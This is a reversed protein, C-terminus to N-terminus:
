RHAGRAARALMRLRSYLDDRDVYCGRLRRGAGGDEFAERGHLVRRNDFIVCDGPRLPFTIRFEHSDCLEIFRRIARYSRDVDAHQMDPFLRLTNAIRIEDVRDGDLGIVPASWRVDTETSRNAWVWPLTALAEFTDPEHIRIHDAVAFGDHHVRFVM